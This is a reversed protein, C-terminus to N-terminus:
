NIKWSYYGNKTQYSWGDISSPKNTLLEEEVELRQLVEQHHTKSKCRIYFDVHKTQNLEIQKKTQFHGIPFIVQQNENITQSIIEAGNVRDFGAFDIEVQDAINMEGEMELQLHLVHHKSSVDCLMWRAHEVVSRLEEKLVRNDLMNQLAAGWSSGDDQPLLYFSSQEGLVKEVDEKHKPHCFFIADVQQKRIQKFLEEYHTHLQRPNEEYHADHVFAAYFVSDSKEMKFLDHDIERDEAIMLKMRENKTQIDSLWQQVIDSKKVFTTIGTKKYWNIHRVTNKKASGSYITEMYISRDDRIFEELFPVGKHPVYHLVRRLAGHIDYEERKMLQQEENFQDIYLIPSSPLEYRTVRVTSNDESIVVENISESVTGTIFESYVRKSGSEPLIYHEFVNLISIQPHVNEELSRIHGKVNVDFNLTLITARKNKEALSNLRLNLSDTLTNDQKPVDGMMFYYDMDPIEVSKMTENLEPQDLTHEGKKKMWNQFM